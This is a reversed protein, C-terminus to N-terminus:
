SEREQRLGFPGADLGHYRADDIWRFWADGAGVEQDAAHLAEEAALHAARGTAAEYRDQSRQQEARAAALRREARHHVASAVPEAGDLATVRGGDDVWRGEALADRRPRAFRATTTM